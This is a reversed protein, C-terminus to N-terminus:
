CAQCRGYPWLYRCRPRICASNGTDLRELGTIGCDKVHEAPIKAQNILYNRVLAQTKVEEFGLEPNAHIHQRIDALGAFLADYDTTAM